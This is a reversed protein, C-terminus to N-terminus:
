LKTYVLITYIFKRYFFRKIYDMKHLSSVELPTGKVCAGTILKISINNKELQPLITTTFLKLVSTIVYVKDGEKINNYDSVNFFRTDSTIQKPYIDCCQAIGRSSVYKCEKEM